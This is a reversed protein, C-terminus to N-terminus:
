QFLDQFNMEVPSPAVEAATAEEELEAELKAAELESLRYLNYALVPITCRNLKPEYIECQGKPCHAKIFPCIKTKTTKAM